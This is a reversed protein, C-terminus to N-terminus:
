RSELVDVLRLLSEADFGAPVRVVRGGACVVELREQDVPSAATPPAAPGTTAPETGGTADKAALRSQARAAPVGVIGLAMAFMGVCVGINKKM